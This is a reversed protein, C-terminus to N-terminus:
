NKWRHAEPKVWLTTGEDAEESASLHSKDESPLQSERAVVEDPDAICDARSRSTIRRCLMCPRLPFYIRRSSSTWAAAAGTTCPAGRNAVSFKGSSRSRWPHADATPNAPLAADRRSVLEETPTLTPIVAAEPDGEGTEAGSKAWRIGGRGQWPSGTWHSVPPPQGWSRRHSVGIAWHRQM